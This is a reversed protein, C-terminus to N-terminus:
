RYGGVYVGVCVHVSIKSQGMLHSGIVFFGDSNTHYGDLGLALYSRDVGNAGNYLVLTTHSLSVNGRGGDYLEIFELGDMGPLDVNIENIVVDTIFSPCLNLANRSPDCMVFPSMTFRSLSFCRSLSTSAQLM